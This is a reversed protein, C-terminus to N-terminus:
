FLHDDIYPLKRKSKILFFFLIVISDHIKKHFNDVFILFFAHSLHTKKWLIKRFKQFIHRHYKHLNAVNLKFFQYFIVM